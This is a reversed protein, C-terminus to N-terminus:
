KFWLTIQFGNKQDSEVTADLQGILGKIIEMGLGKDTVMNFDHGVGTDAYYLKNRGSNHDHTLLVQIIGANQKVFAHKMSNSVLEVIIFGLPLAKEISLINIECAVHLSIQKQNNYSEKVLEALEAIYRPLDVENVNDSVSLKKHLLAMSHIRNQNGRILEDINNFDVSEKQIELISIVHQLNNKVRHQLESLLVQKQGLLKILEEVQSSIVKNQAKIKRNKRALFIYALAIVLLIIIIFIIQQDKAKIIAEKKETEYRKAVETLQTGEQLHLYAVHTDHFKHFYFFSSDKNGISDFVQYRAFYHSGDATSVSFDRAIQLASDSYSLAEKKRGNRLHIIAVNNYQWLASGYDNIAMFSRAALLTYHIAEDPDKHSLISGLLLCGDIYERTNNYAEAYAIGKYAYHTATDMQNVFRCYSSLRTCYESYVSDLKYINHLTRAEDLYQKCMKFERAIEHMVAVMLCAKFEKVPLHHIQAEDLVNLSIELAKKNKEQARYIFAKDLLLKLELEKAEKSHSKKPLQAQLTDIEKEAQAYNSYLILSDIRASRAATSLQQANSAPGSVILLWLLFL